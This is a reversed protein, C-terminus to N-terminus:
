YFKHAKRRNIQRIHIQNRSEASFGVYSNFKHPLACLLVKKKKCTPITTQM